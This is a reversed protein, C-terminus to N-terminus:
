LPSRRRAAARMRLATMGFGIAACVVFCPGMSLAMGVATSGFHATAATGALGALPGFFFGAGIFGEHGGGADVSANKVTMAYSLSAYYSLGAAFGTVVLGLVACSATPALITVFFGLPLMAYSLALVWVRGRWWASALLLGFAALRAWDASSALVTALETQVGLRAFLGPALPAIVWLSIYSMFMTWRSVALLAKERALTASSPREPHDHALHVPREPLGLVIVLVAVNILAALVFPSATWLVILRGEVSLALPVSSAWALNFRGVAKFSQEPTLGANVYSEFIPWKLGNLAALVAAGVFVSATTCHFTLLVLVAIQGIFTWALARREGIAASVANSTLAGGVYTAGYLLALWLNLEDSFHLGERTIFYLGREILV